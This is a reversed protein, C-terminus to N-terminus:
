LNQLVGIHRKLHSILVQKLTMDESPADTRFPATETDGFGSFINSFIDEAGRGFDFGFDFPGFGEFGTGETGFSTTGFQDYEARKKEDSLVEYAENIEKFKQEATKNGPNLDPHYKRALKRYARKIEDQSADKKVGLIEYYDKAAASM